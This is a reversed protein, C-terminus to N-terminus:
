DKTYLRQLLKQFQNQRLDHRFDKYFTIFVDYENAKSRELEALYADFKQRHVGSQAIQSQRGVSQSRPIVIKKAQGKDVIYDDEFEKQHYQNTDMLYKQSEIYPVYKSYDLEEPIIDRGRSRGM